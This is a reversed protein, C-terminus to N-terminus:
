GKQLLQDKFQDKLPVGVEIRDGRKGTGMSKALEVKTKYGTVLKNRVMAKKQLQYQREFSTMSYKDQSDLKKISNPATKDM